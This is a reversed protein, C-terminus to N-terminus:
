SGLTVRGAWPEGGEGSETPAPSIASLMEKEKEYDSRCLLQGEKLVFEDGRQLRRECECCYFCHVHYVNELVRMILESPAIAKLCSSCKTQFLRHLLDQPNFAQTPLILAPNPSPFSSSSHPSHKSCTGALIM